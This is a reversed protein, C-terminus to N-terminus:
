PNYRAEKLLQQPNNIQMLEPLSCKSQKMYREVIRYGTWNAAKGPSEPPLGATFPADGAYKQIVFPTTVFLLREEILYQWLLRENDICWQLQEPRFGLIDDFAKRPMCQRLIYLIKGEYILRTLLNSEGGFPEPYEGALWAQLCAPTVREPRMNYRQYVAKGLQAYLPYDAGLFQDLGIGVASDTLMLSENFGSVYMYIHPIAADPFYYRFHRFADTLENRLPRDDAYVDRVKRYASDVVPHHLFRQVIDCYQANRSEGARIIGTNYYEFFRGYQARLEPLSRCTSDDIMRYLDHDLREIVLPLEIAAIKQEQSRCGPLWWVSLLLLVSLPLLISLLLRVKNM